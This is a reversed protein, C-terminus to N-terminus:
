LREVLDALLDSTLLQLRSHSQQEEALMIGSQLLQRGIASREGGGGGKPLVLLPVPGAVGEALRLATRLAVSGSDAAECRAAELCMALAAVAGSSYPTRQKVSVAHMAALDALAETLGLVDVLSADGSRCTLDVVANRLDALAAASQILDETTGMRLRSTYPGLLQTFSKAIEDEARGESQFHFTYHFATDLLHAFLYPSINAPFYTASKEILAADMVVVEPKPSFRKVFVDEEHHLCCWSKLMPIPSITTPVAILPVPVSKPPNSLVQNVKKSNSFILNRVGKGCDSLSGPGITVISKCGTRRFLEAGEEIFATTPFPTKHTFSVVEIKFKQMEFWMRRAVDKCFEDEASIVLVRKGLLISYNEPMKWICDRGFSVKSFLKRVVYNYQASTKNYFKNIMKSAGLTM